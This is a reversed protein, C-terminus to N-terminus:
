SRSKSTHLPLAIIVRTGRGPQSEFELIGNHEQIINYSISLGLGKGKGPDRTTFFPDTIKALDEPNIGCGSDEIIIYLQQREVRTAITITGKNEIAQGANVLINLIAQHMKGENCILVFPKDTFRKHIEIRHKMQAGTIMLCNDIITHIDGQVMSADNQRSYHDLSRVIDAIRSVGEHIGVTLNTISERHETLNDEIYNELALISGNIFNLPNNIEHAMGSSMVGLSAMKESQVLQKQAQQLNSLTAELEERQNALEMNKSTLEQNAVDLNETREKVLSELNAILGSYTQIFKRVVLLIITAVATIHVAIIVWPYMQLMYSDPKYDGPLTLIGTHHLYGILIFFLISTLFIVLSQKVPLYLISIFPILILYMRTVSLLGYNFSDFLSLLIILAIMIYTKFVTSLLSRIFTLTVVTAIVFFNILFSIHFGFQVLRILSVLYAVSGIVSAAILSSDIIQAKVEDITRIKTKM